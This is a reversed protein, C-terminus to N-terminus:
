SKKFHDLFNHRNQFNRGVSKEAKQLHDITAIAKEGMMLDLQPTKEASMICKVQNQSFNDFSADQLGQITDASSYGLPKVLAYLRM